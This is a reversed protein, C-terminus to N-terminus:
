QGGTTESEALALQTAEHYQDLQALLPSIQQSFRLMENEAISKAQPLKRIITRPNRHVGNMLFEYHLHPGTAYGTSGVTGIVQKQRVREGKKVYKKHLHLYKTQVDNGHQIFVYNGNARSYGAAVVRGDGSAWVPTGRDAAYDTGRHARVTKHVPHLRRPNFNSSIYRFNLPTQLFEKRMSKGQPTYYHVSGDEHEYRVAKVTNGQNTFEAALIAGNGLKEGDLFKEEYLVKFTDGRRIDLGFDIDWGFITALQDISADDLGVDPSKAALYLSSTIEAERYALHIDPTKNQDEAVFGNDGRRYLRSNLRDKTHRLQQLKGAEDLQFALQHGPYIRTLARADKGSSIFEHVDSQTLGARKFLLSLNDGSKVVLSKWELSPAPTAPEEPIATEPVPTSAPLNLTLPITQREATVDGSPFLLLLGSLCLGLGGAVMLHKRPFQSLYNRFPLKGQTEIPEM